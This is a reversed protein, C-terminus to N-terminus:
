KGVLDMLLGIGWLQELFQEFYFINNGQGSVQRFLDLLVLHEFDLLELKFGPVVKNLRKVLINKILQQDIIKEQKFRELSERNEFRAYERSLAGM